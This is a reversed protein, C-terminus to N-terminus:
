KGHHNEKELEELRKKLVAIEYSLNIIDSNHRSLKMYVYFSLIYLLFIMVLFVTNVPTQIGIMNSIFYIIEPFISIVVTGISWIIWIMAYHINMKGKVVNYLVYVLTALSVGFLGIQLINGMIIVM